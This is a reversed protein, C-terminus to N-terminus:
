DVFCILDRQTGLKVLHNDLVLNRTLSYFIYYLLFLICDLSPLLTFVILYIDKQIKYQFQLLYNYKQIKLILYIQCIFLLRLYNNPTEVVVVVVVDFGKEWALQPLSSIFGLLLLFGFCPFQLLFSFSFFSLSLFFSFLLSLNQCMSQQDGRLGILLWTKLYM